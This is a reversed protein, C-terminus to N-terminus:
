LEFAFGVPVWDSMSSALRRLVYCVRLSWDVSWLAVESSM